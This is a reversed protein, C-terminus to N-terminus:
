KLSLLYEALKVFDAQEIKGEFGPMKSQPNQAKPNTVYAILWEKTHKADAGLKGLDPGKPGPGGVAPATGGSLSHCNSCRQADFVKRGAAFEALVPPGGPDRAPGGPGGGMMGGPPGGMGGPPGMGAPPGSSGTNSTKAKDCSTTLVAAFLALGIAYGSRIKANRTM